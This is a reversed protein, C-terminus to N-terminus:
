VVDAERLRVLDEGTLGLEDLYIEANHEGLKPPLRRLKLPMGSAQVFPGLYTITTALEPHRMEQFYGRAHLQTYNLIDRPTSVPFLLIRRTVAGEFLEAKTHNLLFREVPPVVRELLEKTITGYGLEVWDLEKLFSDGMDEEEMWQILNNVSRGAGAGGSLQFNM